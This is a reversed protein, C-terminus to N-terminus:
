VVLGLWRLVVMRLLRRRFFFDIISKQEVVNEIHLSVARDDMAIKFRLLIFMDSNTVMTPSQPITYSIIDSKLDLNDPPIETCVTQKVDKNTSLPPTFWSIEKFQDGM